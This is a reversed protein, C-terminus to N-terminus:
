TEIIEFTGLSRVKDACWSKNIDPIEWKINNNILPLIGIIYAIMAFPGVQMLGEKSHMSSATGNRNRLVISSWHCYSNFVFCAVSLWLQRFTWLM